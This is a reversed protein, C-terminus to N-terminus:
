GVGAAGPQRRRAVRDAGAGLECRTDFGRQSGARSRATRVAHAARRNCSRLPGIDSFRPAIRAHRGRSQGLYPRPRSARHHPRHRRRDPVNRRFLDESGILRADGPAFGFSIIPENKRAKGNADPKPPPRVVAALHPDGSRWWRLTADAGYSVLMAGDRSYSAGWAAGRHALVEDALTGTQAWWTRIWGDTTAATVRNRDPSFAVWKVASKQGAGLSTTAGSAIGIIRVTGDEYGVALRSGDGDFAVANAASANPYVAVQRGSPIEWLRVTNDSGASALRAGDPSFRILPILAPEGAPQSDRGHGKLAVVLKGTAVEFIRVAGEPDARGTTALYKGDATLEVFPTGAAVGFRAMFGARIFSDIMESFSQDVKIEVRALKQKAAALKRKADRLEADDNPDDALSPDPPPLPQNSAASESAAPNTQGTERLFNALGEDPDIGEYTKLPKGTLADWAVAFNSGTGGIVYKGNPGFRVSMVIMGDSIFLPTITNSRLDIM